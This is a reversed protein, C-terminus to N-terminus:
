FLGQYPSDPADLVRYALAEAIHHEEVRESEELDAITRAVRLMRVYGRATLNLTEMAVDLLSLAKDTAATLERLSEGTVDANFKFPTNAYRKRQLCWARGIRARVDDNQKGAQTLPRV